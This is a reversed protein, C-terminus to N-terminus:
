LDFGVTFHLRYAPNEVAIQQALSLNIAGVLTYYHLGIGAAKFLGAAKIDNFANGADFFISVAADKFLERELEFSITFLHEGGTVNGSSDPPGLSKYAYGRVSQDGGAFFRVSPPLASFAENLITANLRARSHLSLQWPLPLLYNGGLMLQLFGTNSGLMESTGRLELAYNYGNTPRMKNDCAEGTFRFGPMILRSNSSVLGIAYEEFQLKIYATGIEGKQFSRVEEAKFSMLRSSYIPNLEHQLNFQFSTYSQIDKIGPINYAALFGQLIPSIYLSARLDHEINFLKLDRYSITFRFGTDTGYGIGPRLSKSPLEAM